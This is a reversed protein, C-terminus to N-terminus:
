GPGPGTKPSLWILVAFLVGVVFGGCFALM